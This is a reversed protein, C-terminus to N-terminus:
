QDDEDKDTNLWAKRFGVVALLAMGGALLPQGTAVYRHDNTWVTVEDLIGMAVCLGIGLIALARWVPGVKNLQKGM